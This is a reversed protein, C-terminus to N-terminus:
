GNEDLWNAIGVELSEMAEALTRCEKNEFVVGGSDLARAAFGRGDQDGIEIWGSKVWTAVNPFAAEIGNRPMDVLSDGLRFKNPPNRDQPPEASGLAEVVSILLDIIVVALQKVGSDSLDEAEIYRTMGARDVFPTLSDSLVKKDVSSNGCLGILVSTFSELSKGSTAEGIAEKAIRPTVASRNDAGDTIVILFGNCL